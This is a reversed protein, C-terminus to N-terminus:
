FKVIQAHPVGSIKLIAEPHILGKELAKDVICKGVMNVVTCQKMLDVAEEVSVKSGKYFEERVEFVIKGDRLVKGLLEADCTA